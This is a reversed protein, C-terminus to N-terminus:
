WGSSLLFNSRAMAFSSVKTLIHGNDITSKKLYGRRIGRAKLRVSVGSPKSILDM